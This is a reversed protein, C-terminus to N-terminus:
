NPAQNSDESRGRAWETIQYAASDPQPADGSWETSSLKATLFGFATTGDRKHITLGLSNFNASTVESRPIRQSGIPYRLILEDGTIRVGLRLWLVTMVGIVLVLPWVERIPWDKSTLTFILLAIFPLCRFARSFWGDGWARGELHGNGPEEDSRTRL